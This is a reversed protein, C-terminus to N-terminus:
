VEPTLQGHGLKAANKYNYNGGGSHCGGQTGCAGLRIDLVALRGKFGHAADAMGHLRCATGRLAGVKQSHDTALGAALRLEGHVRSRELVGPEGPVLLGEVLEQHVGHRLHWAGD